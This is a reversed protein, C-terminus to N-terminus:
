AGENTKIKKQTIVNSTESIYTKMGKEPRYLLVYKDFGDLITEETSTCVPIFNHEKCFKFLQVRNKGDIRAIEDIGITIKNEKSSIALRNMISMIIVLRIMIDTGTSEDQKELDLKKEKGDITLRLEIDFLEAFEIKKGSDLYANLVKLNETKDFDFSTQPTFEDISSIKKLDSLVKANDNLIIKLADIDSISTRALKNNFRNYVFEKFEGYRKVILHAPNAFQTSIAQLIIEVSKQKDTLCAIEDEIFSVFKEEDAETSNVKNKLKEFTVDKNAKLTERQSNHHRIKAYISKLPETEENEKPDFPINEVEEKWQRLEKARNDLRDKEETLVGISETKRVIEESLINLEKELKEKGTTTESFVAILESLAKEINPKEDTKRIRETVIRIAQKIIDLDNKASELDMAVPLLKDYDDKEKQTSILEEKLADLSPVNSKKLGSTLKIEGDFLLMLSDINKIQKEITEAISGSFDASLIYNLIEKYEQKDTIKHILQNSYDKIQSDIRRVAQELLSIKQEIQKVTLGRTQINTIKTEIGRRKEEHNALSQKLFDIGEYSNIELLQNQIETQQGLNLKLAEGKAGIERDM